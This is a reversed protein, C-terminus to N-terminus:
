GRLHDKDVSDAIRPSWIARWACRCPGAATAADEVNYNGTVTHGALAPKIETVTIRHVDIETLQRVGDASSVPRAGRQPSQPIAYVGPPVNGSASVSGIPQRREHAHVGQRLWTGANADAGADRTVAQRQVELGAADALVDM